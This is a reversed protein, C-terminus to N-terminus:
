TLDSSWRELDRFGASVLHSYTEDFMPMPPMFVVTVDRARTLLVRYANQRLTLPDRVLSGRAYHRARSNSWKGDVFLFDSGWGLLAADLELGQCGFETVCTTLQTCSQPSRARGLGHGPNVRQTDYWGNAIGFAALDRDRSSAVLGYRVAPDDRYRSRLYAKAEHLSRSIRLQYGDRELEDAQTALDEAPEGALLRGVYDHLSLALHFRLGTDLHLRPEM